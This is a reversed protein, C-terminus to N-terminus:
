PLKYPVPPLFQTFRGQCAYGTGSRCGDAMRENTNWENVTRVARERASETRGSLERRDRRVAQAKVQDNGRRQRHQDAVFFPQSVLGEDMRKDM